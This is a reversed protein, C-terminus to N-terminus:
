NIAFLWTFMFAHKLHINVGLFQSDIKQFCFRMGKEYWIYGLNIKHYNSLVFKLIFMSTFLYFLIRIGCCNLLSIKKKKIEIYLLM